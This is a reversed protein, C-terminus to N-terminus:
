QKAMDMHKNMFEHLRIAMITISVGYKKALKKLPEDDALDFSLDSLNERELFSDPVLLHMAFYNAETEDERNM